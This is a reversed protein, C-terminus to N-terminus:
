GEIWTELRPPTTIKGTLPKWECQDTLEVGTQIVSVPRDVSGVVVIVNPHEATFRLASNYRAGRARNEHPLAHGDLLCAFSHLKLDSGIHLAGDVKSLSTALELMNNDTLDLPEDLKQGSIELPGRNLDVVLGCGHKGEGADHVIHNIIKFLQNGEAPDLDSELLAEEVQVLNAKRTSSYYRGDSFSCVLDDDLKLFGHSGRFEVSLSARPAYDSSIGIINRGDSVLKRNSDEVAQLLKRVHKLNKIGPREQLPFRAAFSMDAMTSPEVFILEGRPWAGEELTKSIGLVADLIPFIRLRTDWGMRVNRQDVIYDRVAHTAYEQLVYGSTGLNLLYDTAINRSLLGAAYELWRETPGVCCMDPHEETFWIQYFIACSRGGCSIIGTLSPYEEPGLRELMFPSRPDAAKERWLPSDLYLEKLRPEHGRLLGQPDHIRIPDDPHIAYIVAARSPRSFHSLGESVGDVVESICQNEFYRPDMCSRM